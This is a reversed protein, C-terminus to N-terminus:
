ISRYNEEYVEMDDLTLLIHVPGMHDEYVETDDLSYYLVWITRMSRLTMWLSYYLVWITRMSRQTMWLSYYLAGYPGTDTRM